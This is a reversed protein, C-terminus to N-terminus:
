GGLASINGNIGILTSKNFDWFLEKDSENNIFFVSKEATVKGIIECALDIEHFKDKVVPTKEPRLSLIFGFSPFTLLWENLPVEFPRPINDLNIVAGKGSSELLMLISGILGAMSVDKATDATGDEATESIAELQKIAESGELMSSSDWFKFGSIFKGKLNSILVLDDGARAGFSTLLKKAKGLIFVSLSPCEADQSIHGGVVPVNYRAANDRIGRLAENANESDSSFLVDIVAMPRGGMAYIDNVNALVSTRGALYPDSKLLHQYVGEAALLLYGDESKIAAADDGLLIENGDIQCNQPFYNWVDRIAQKQFLRASSQISQILEQM